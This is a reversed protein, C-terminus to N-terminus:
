QLLALKSPAISGHHKVHFSVESFIDLFRHRNGSTGSDRPCPVFGLEVSINAAGVLSLLEALNRVVLTTPQTSEFYCRWAFRALRSSRQVAVARVRSRPFYTGTNLM